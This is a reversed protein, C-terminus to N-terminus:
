SWVILNLLIIRINNPNEKRLFHYKSCTDSGNKKWKEEMKKM